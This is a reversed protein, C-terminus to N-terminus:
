RILILVVSFRLSSNVLAVSWSGYSIESSVFIYNLGLRVERIDARWPLCLDLYYMTTVIMGDSNPVVQKLVMDAGWGMSPPFHDSLIDVASVQLFFFFLVQLIFYHAYCHISYLEGKLELVLQSLFQVAHHYPWLKLGRRAVDGKDDCNSGEYMWLDTHHPFCCLRFMGEVNQQM